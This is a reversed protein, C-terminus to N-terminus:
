CGPDLNGQCRCAPRCCAGAGLDVVTDLGVADAGSEPRGPCPTVGSVRPFGIIERRAGTRPCRRDDPRDPAPVLPDVRGGTAGGAPRERRRRGRARREASRSLVRCAWPVRLDARRRRRGRDPAVLYDISVTVPSRDAPEFLAPDGYALRRAPGQDPTGQGASWTARWRSPPAASASCRPRAPRAGGARRTSRRSSRRSAPWSRRTAPRACGDFDERGDVPDLRPGHGTEFRVDLGLADPVVLIDCFLIAADFGFRRIPQLTVEAAFDRAHLLPRPVLEARRRPTARYEPLYRGAQRMMWAPPAGIAEGDLVRLMKREVPPTGTM